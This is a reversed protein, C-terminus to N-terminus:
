AEIALIKEGANLFKRSIREGSTIGFLPGGGSTIRVQDTIVEQTMAYDSWLGFGLGVTLFMLALTHM